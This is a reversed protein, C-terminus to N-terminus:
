QPPPVSVHGIHIFSEVADVLCEISHIFLKSRQAPPDGPEIFVHTSSDGPEVFVQAPAKVSEIFPEFLHDLADLRDLFAEVFHGRADLRELIKPVENLSDGVIVLM